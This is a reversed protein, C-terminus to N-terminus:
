VARNLTLRPQTNGLELYYDIKATSGPAIVPMLLGLRPFLLAFDGVLGDETKNPLTPIEPNLSLTCCRLFTDTKRWAQVSGIDPFDQSSQLSSLCVSYVAAQFIVSSDDIRLRERNIWNQPGRDLHFSLLTATFSIYSFPRRQYSLSNKPCTGRPSFRARLFHFSPCERQSESM